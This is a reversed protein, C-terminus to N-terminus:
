KQAAINMLSQAPHSSSVLAEQQLFNFPFMGEPAFRM